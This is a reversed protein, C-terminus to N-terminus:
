ALLLTGKEKGQSISLLDLAHCIRVQQVGKSIANFCNDMKPIMGDVIIGENKLEEYEPTRITSIVSNSDQIDRMLGPLEFCYVLEVQYLASMAIAVESAITDANTNLLQGKKDHTIPVMVPVIQQQLVKNIYDSNVEDVDAVFGYDVAGADRKHSRIVNADAGTLGLANCDRAQLQAVINKNVLGAYVMTVVDLTEKDTVRRGEVMQTEIQLAKSVKTAVKGGGHVLVNNGALQVFDNLFTDLAEPNDVINGGIKVIRLLNM